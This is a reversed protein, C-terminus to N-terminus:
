NECDVNIVSNLFLIHLEALKSVHIKNQGKVLENKDSMALGLSTQACFIMLVSIILDSM